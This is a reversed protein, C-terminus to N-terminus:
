EIAVSTVSTSLVTEVSPSELADVTAFAGYRLRGTYPAEKLNHITQSPTHLSARLRSVSLVGALILVLDPRLLYGLFYPDSRHFM